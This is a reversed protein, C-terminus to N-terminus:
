DKDRSIHNLLTRLDKCIDANDLSIREPLTKKIDENEIEIRRREMCDLHAPTSSIRGCIRCKM